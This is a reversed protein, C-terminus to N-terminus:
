GCALGAARLEAELFPSCRVFEVGADRLTTLCALGDADIFLVDALNLRVRLSQQLCSLAASELESVWPGLIRGELRLVVTGDPARSESIRLM